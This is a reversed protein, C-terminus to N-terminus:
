PLALDKCYIEINTGGLVSCMFLNCNVELNREFEGRNETMELRNRDGIVEEQKLNL